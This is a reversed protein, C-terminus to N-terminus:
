KSVKASTAREAREVTEGFFVSPEIYTGELMKDLGSQSNRLYRYEVKQVLLNAIQYAEQYSEILFILRSPFNLRTDVYLMIAGDKETMWFTRLDEWTYMMDMTRVGIKEIQHKARQPPINILVFLIFFVAAAVLTLVPQGIWVFYLGFLVVAGTFISKQQGSLMYTPRDNSEWTFIVKNYEYKSPTKAREQEVVQQLTSKTNTDQKTSAM